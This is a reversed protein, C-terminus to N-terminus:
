KVRAFNQFLFQSAKCLISLPCKSRNVRAKPRRKAAFLAALIVTGGGFSEYACFCNRWSRLSSLCFIIISLISLPCKKRLCLSQVIKKGCM